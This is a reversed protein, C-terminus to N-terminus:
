EAKRDHWWLIAANFGVAAWERKGYHRLLAGQKDELGAADLEQWDNAKRIGKIGDQAVRAMAELFAWPVLQLQLKSKRDNHPELHGDGLSCEEFMSCPPPDVFGDETLVQGPKGVPLGLFNDHAQGPVEDDQVVTSGALVETVTAPEGVHEVIQDRISEVKPLQVIEVFTGVTEEVQGPITVESGWVIDAPHFSRPAYGAIYQRLMNSIMETLQADHPREQIQAFLGELMNAPQDHGANRVQEIVEKQRDTLAM